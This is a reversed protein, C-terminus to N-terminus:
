GTWRSRRTRRCPQRSARTTPAPAKDYRDYLSEDKVLTARALFYFEGLTPAMLGHRLADVLDPTKVSVPLQLARLRYFFDIMPLRGTAHLWRRQGGRTM